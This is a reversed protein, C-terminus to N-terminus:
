NANTGGVNSTQFFASAGLNSSGFIGIGGAGDAQGKVAQGNIKANNGLISQDATATDMEFAAGTTTASLFWSGDAFLNVRDVDDPGTMEFVSDGPSFGTTSIFVGHTGNFVNNKPGTVVRTAVLATDLVGTGSVNFNGTDPTGPTTLQLSVADSGTGAPDAWTGDARWFKVTGGGSAPVYGAHTADNIQIGAHGSTHITGGAVGGATLPSDFTIGTVTGGGPVGVVSLGPVLQDLGM